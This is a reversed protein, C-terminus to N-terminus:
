FPRCFVGLASTKEGKKNWRMTVNNLPVIVEESLTIHVYIHSFLTLFDNKQATGKSEHKALKSHKASVGVWLM